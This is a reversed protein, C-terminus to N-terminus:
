REYRALAFDNSGNANTQGAVVIGSSDLAVGLGFDTGGFDTLVEGNLGFNSDLSGDPQYRALAFDYAPYTGAYGAAVILQGDLVLGGMFAPGAFSTLVKGGVGFSPDLNGALDYRALAFDTDGTAPDQAFGGAVIKGGQLALGEVGSSPFAPGFTTTVIGGNGFSPDLTGDPLLMALTFKYINIGGGFTSGGGVVIEGSPLILVGTVEPFLGPGLDVVAKGGTGFSADLDGDRKYRAVAFGETLM